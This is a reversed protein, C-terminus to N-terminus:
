KKPAPDAASAPEIPAPEPKPKATQNPENPAPHVQDFETRLVDFVLLAMEWSALSDGSRISETKRIVNLDEIINNITILHPEFLKDSVYEAQSKGLETLKSVLDAIREENADPFLEEIASDQKALTTALIESLEAETRDPVNEVLAEVNERLAGAFEPTRDSLKQFEAQVERKTDHFTQYAARKVIPVIRENMGTAVGKVFQERTDGPRALSEISSYIMLICGTIIAIVAIPIGLRWRSVQARLAHLEAIKKSTTEPSM